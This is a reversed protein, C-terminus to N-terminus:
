GADVWAVIQPATVAGPQRRVEAGGRLLLLTPISRIAFRSSLRPNADSNVKAFLARGQLQRAAAEFQPAMQRCPGCWPAWFDVVLPIETRSVVADFDADGLEVPRGDLLAKGCRGCVPNDRARDAPVRNTAGCPVCVVLM